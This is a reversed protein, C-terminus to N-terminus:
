RPGPEGGCCLHAYLWARALRWERVITVEAVGLAAAVEEITFGGFFRLEVIRSKRPDLLSLAVLGENLALLEQSQRGDRTAELPPLGRAAGGGRRAALHRRAHDVLARRMVLSASAFFHARDKWRVPGGAVLRLYAEHVLATPQLTHDSREQKLYSSAIRRLTPYSARFYEDLVPRGEELDPELRRALM